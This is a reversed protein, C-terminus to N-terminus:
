RKIDRIMVEFILKKGALPYNYDITIYTENVDIVKAFQNNIRITKNVIPELETIVYSDNLKIRLNGLPTSIASNNDVLHEVVVSENEEDIKLVRAEWYRLRVTKNVEPITGTGRLIEYLPFEMIRPFSTVRPTTVILDESRNGYGEEPPIVITKKEGIKMGTLYDEFVYRHFGVTFNLPAYSSKNYWEVKPIGADEGVKKITTDFIEGSEVRAVYDVSVYDGNKVVLEKAPKEQTGSICGSIVAICLVLGLFYRM